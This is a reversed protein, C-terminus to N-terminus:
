KLVEVTNLEPGGGRNASGAAIYIMSKYVVAQTGHRGQNLTPRAIWHRNKPDLMEAENHALRPM